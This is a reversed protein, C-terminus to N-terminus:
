DAPGAQAAGFDAPETRLSELPEVVGIRHVPYMELTSPNEPGDEGAGAERGLPADLSWPEILTFLLRIGPQDARVIWAGEPFDREGHVLLNTGDPASELPLENGLDPPLAAIAGIRYSGVKLSEGRSLREVRFGHAAVLEAWERGAPEIVWAAPIPLALKRRVVSRWRDTTQQVIQGRENWVMWVLEPQQENLVHDHRLSLAPPPSEDFELLGEAQAAAVELLYGVSQYLLQVREVLGDVGGMSTVGLMISLSGGLSFANGAHEAGLQGPTLFAGDPLAAAGMLPTEFTASDPGVAVYERFTVSARSLENAVHPLLYFRGYRILDPDVNPHRALGAQVRYVMPGIERLEVVLHPRWDAVLDHVGRTAPSRLLTHDLAQDVGSPEAATWWLLGWPNAAPIFAIELDDLLAGIEGLVLERIIQLSVETGSLDDGRQGALVLVRLRQGTAESPRRVRALLVPLASDPEVSGGDIWSLTDLTVVDFKGALGALYEGVDAPTSPAFWGRQEGPTSWARSGDALEVEQEQGQVDPALALLVCVAGIIRIM